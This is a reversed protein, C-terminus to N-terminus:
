RGGRRRPRRRGESHIGKRRLVELLEEWDGRVPPPADGCVKRSVPVSSKKSKSVGEALARILLRTYQWENGDPAQELRDMRKRLKDLKEFTAEADLIKMCEEM